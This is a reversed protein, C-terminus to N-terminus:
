LLENLKNELRDKEKKIEKRITNIFDKNKSECTHTIGNVNHLHILIYNVDRLGLIRNLQKIEDNIRKAENINEPKMNCLKFINVICLYM